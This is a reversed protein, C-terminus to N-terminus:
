RRRTREARKTAILDTLYAALQQTVRDAQGPNGYAIVDAPIWAGTRERRQGPLRHVRCCRQYRPCNSQVQSV